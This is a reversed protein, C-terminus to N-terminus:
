FFRCSELPSRCLSSISANHVPVDRCPPFANQGKVWGARFFTFFFAYKSILSFGLFPLFSTFLSLCQEFPFGGCRTNEFPFLELRGRERKQSASFPSKWSLSLATRPPFPLTLHPAHRSPPRIWSFISIKREDCSLPRMIRSRCFCFCHTLPSREQEKLPGM